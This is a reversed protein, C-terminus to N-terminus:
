CPQPSGGGANLTKLPGEVARAMTAEGPGEDFDDLPLRGWM